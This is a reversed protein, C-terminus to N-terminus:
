QQRCGLVILKLGRVAAIATGSKSIKVQWWSEWKGSGIRALSRATDADFIELINEGYMLGSIFVATGREKASALYFAALAGLEHQYTLSGNWADYAYLYQGGSTLVRGVTPVLCLSGVPEATQCSSIIRREALSHIEVTRGVGLVVNKEGAFDVYSYDDSSPSHELFHSDMAQLDFFCADGGSFATVLKSGCVCADTPYPRKDRQPIDLWGKPGGRLDWVEIPEDGYEPVVVAKEGTLFVFKGRIGGPIPSLVWSGTRSVRRLLYAPDSPALIHSCYVAFADEGQVEGLRVPKDGYIGEFEAEVEFPGFREAEIKRKLLEILSALGRQRLDFYIRTPLLWEPHFSEVLIPLIFGPGEHLERAQAARRELQSWARSEFSASALVLCYRSQRFFVDNLYDAGDRGLMEHEFYEDFFVRLNAARLAEASRRALERKDGAFSIAFDFKM